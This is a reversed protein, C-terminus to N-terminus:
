LILKKNKLDQWLKDATKRCIKDLAEIFLTNSFGITGHTIEKFKVLTDKAVGRERVSWLIKGTDAEIIRITAVAELYPQKTDLTFNKKM